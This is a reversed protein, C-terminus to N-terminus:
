TKKKKTMIDFPINLIKMIKSENQLRLRMKIKIKKM